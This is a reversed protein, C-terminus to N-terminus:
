PPTTVSDTFIFDANDTCTGCASMPVTSYTGFASLTSPDTLTSWGNVLDDTCFWGGTCADICIQLPPESETGVCVLVIQLDPGDAEIPGSGYWVREANTITGIGPITKDPVEDLRITWDGCWTVHAYITEPYADCGTDGCECDCIDEDETLALRGGFYHALLVGDITKLTM